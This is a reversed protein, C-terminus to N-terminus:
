QPHGVLPTPWRLGSARGLGARCGDECPQRTAGVTRVPGGPATCCLRAPCRARIAGHGGWAPQSQTAGMLAGEVAATGALQLAVTCASHEAGGERGERHRPYLTPAYGLPLAASKSE